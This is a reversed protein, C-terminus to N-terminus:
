TIVTSLSRKRFIEKHERIIKLIIKASLGIVRGIELIRKKETNYKEDSLNFNCIRHAMM